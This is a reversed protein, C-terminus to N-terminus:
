VYMHLKFHLCHKHHQHLRTKWCLNHLHLQYFQKSQITKYQNLIHIPYLTKEQRKNVLNHLRFLYHVNTENPHIPFERVMSYFHQRCSICPYYLSISQIFDNIDVKPEWQVWIHFDKWCARGLTEVYSM